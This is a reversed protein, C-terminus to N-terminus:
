WSLVPHAMHRGIETTGQKLSNNDQLGPPPAERLNIARTAVELFEDMSEKTTKYSVNTGVPTISIKL